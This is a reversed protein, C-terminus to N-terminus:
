TCPDAKVVVLDKSQLKKSWQGSINTSYFEELTVLSLAVPTAHSVLLQHNLPSKKQFM